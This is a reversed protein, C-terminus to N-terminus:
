GLWERPPVVHWRPEAQALGDEIRQITFSSIPRPLDDARWYGCDSVESSAPAPAEASEVSCSFVLHHADLEPEFYVGCLRDVTGHLGTEERLERLATEALSEGPESVGGPLEWNLRGYTHRVLLVRGRADVVFAAVGMKRGPWRM